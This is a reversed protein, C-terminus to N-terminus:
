ADPENLADKLTMTDKDAITMLYAMDDIFATVNDYIEVLYIAFTSQSGHYQGKMKSVIFWSPKSNAYTEFRTRIDSYSCSSWFRRRFIPLNEDFIIDIKSQNTM